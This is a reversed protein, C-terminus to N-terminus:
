EWPQVKEFSASIAYGCDVCKQTTMTVSARTAAKISIGHKTRICEPKRLASGVLSSCALLAACTLTAGTQILLM